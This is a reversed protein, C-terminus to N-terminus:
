VPIVNIQRGTYADYVNMWRQKSQQSECIINVTDGTVTASIVTDVCVGGIYGKESIFKVENTGNYQGPEVVCAIIKNRSSM